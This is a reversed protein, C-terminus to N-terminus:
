YTEFQYKLYHNDFSANELIMLNGLQDELPRKLISDSICNFTNLKLDIVYKESLVLKPKWM